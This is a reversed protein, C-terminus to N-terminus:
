EIADDRGWILWASIAMISVVILCIAGVMWHGTCFAAISLIFLLSAITCFGIPTM